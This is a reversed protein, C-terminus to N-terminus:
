IARENTRSFGRRCTRRPKEKAGHIRAREADGLVGVFQGLVADGLVRQGLPIGGLQQHVTRAGEGIRMEAVQRLVDGRAGQQHQVVGAHHVGAHQQAPGRTRHDLAHQHLRRVPSRHFGGQALPLLRAPPAQHAICPAPFALREPTFLRAVHQLGRALRLLGAPLQHAEAPARRVGEALHQLRETRHRQRGVHVAGHPRLIGLAVVGDEGRM